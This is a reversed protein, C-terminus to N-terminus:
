VTPAYLPMSMRLLLLLLLLLSFMGPLLLQPVGLHHLLLQNLLSLSYKQKRLLPQNEINPPLM